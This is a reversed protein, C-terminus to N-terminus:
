PLEGGLSIIANELEKIKKHYVNMFEKANFLNKTGDFWGEDFRAELLKDIQEASPENGKGFTETLNIIIPEKFQYNIDYGGSKVFRVRFRIIGTTIENIVSLNEWENIKSYVNSFTDTETILLRGDTVDSKLKAGLYYVNNPELGTYVAQLYGGTTNVTLVNETEDTITTGSVERFVSLEKITNEAPVHTNKYAILDLM